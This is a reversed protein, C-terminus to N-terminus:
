RPSPLSQSSGEVIPPRAFFQNPPLIAMTSMFVQTSELVDVATGPSLLPRGPILTHIERLYYLLDPAVLLCTASRLYRVTGIKAGVAVWYLHPGLGTTGSAKTTKRLLYSSSELRCNLLPPRWPSHARSRIRSASRSGSILRSKSSSVRTPSAVSV